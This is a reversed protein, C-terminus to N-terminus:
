QRKGQEDLLERVDDILSDFHTPKNVARNAGAKIAEDLTDSGYATLVIIPTNKFEPLLRLQKILDIGTIEPMNTDTIILDPHESNALYLGERGDSAIIVNYGETKLHLHMLERTDANDEVVLITKPM